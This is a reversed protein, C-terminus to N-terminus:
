WGALEIIGTITGQGNFKSTIVFKYIVSCLLLVGQEKEKAILCLGQVFPYRM